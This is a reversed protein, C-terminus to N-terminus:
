QEYDHISEFGLQVDIRNIWKKVYRLHGMVLGYDAFGGVHAINNRKQTMDQLIVRDAKNIIESFKKNIYDAYITKLPPSPANMVIYETDPFKSVILHKTAVELASYMMLYASRFSSLQMLIEVDHLLEHHLPITKKSSYFKPFNIFDDESLEPLIEDYYIVFGLGKRTDKTSSGTRGEMEWEAGVDIFTNAGKGLKINKQWCIYTILSQVLGFFKYAHDSLFHHFFDVDDFAKGQSVLSIYEKYKESSKRFEYAFLGEVVIHKDDVQGSYNSSIRLTELCPIGITDGRFEIANFHFMEAFMHMPLESSFKVNLKVKEVPISSYGM